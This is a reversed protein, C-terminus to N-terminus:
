SGEGGKGRERGREKGGKGAKGESVTEWCGVGLVCGGGFGLGGMEWFLLFFMGMGGGGVKVTGQGEGEGGSGREWRRTGNGM